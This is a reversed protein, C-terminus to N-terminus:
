RPPCLGAEQFGSHDLPHLGAGSRKPEASAEAWSTGHSTYEPSSGRSGGGVVLLTQRFIPLRAQLPTQTRWFSTPPPVWMQLSNCAYVEKLLFCTKLKLYVERLLQKTHSMIVDKKVLPCLCARAFRLTSCCAPDQNDLQERGEQHHLNSRLVIQFTNAQPNFVFPSNM